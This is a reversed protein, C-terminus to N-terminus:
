QKEFVELWNALIDITATTANGTVAIIIGANEPATLAQPLKTGTNDIAVQTNSGLGGTKIITAQSQWRTGNTAVVGTDSIVTGGVVASGVVATTCGAIIKIDKNNATAGYSGAAQIVVTRGAQDFTLAPITFSYLVNDNATTAPSVGPVAAQAAINQTATNQISFIQAPVDSPDTFRKPQTM